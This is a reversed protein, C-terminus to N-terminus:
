SAAAAGWCPSRGSSPASHAHHPPHPRERTGHEPAGTHAVMRASIMGKGHCYCAAKDYFLTTKIAVARPETKARTRAPQRQALDQCSARVCYITCRGGAVCCLSRFYQRVDPKALGSLRELHM